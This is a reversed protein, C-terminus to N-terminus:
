REGDRVWHADMPKDTWAKSASAAGRLAATSTTTCVPDGPKMIMGPLPKLTGSAVDEGKANKPPPPGCMVPWYSIAVIFGQADTKTARAGGYGYAQASQPPSSSASAEGGGTASASAEVNASMDVRVQMIRPDGAALIFPDHEWAGKHKKDPGVVEGDKVVGGGACEPWTDIPTKEDVQCDGDKGMLWVGPRMKPAGAEDALTFLPDKTMVVNCAGLLALSALVILSRLTPAIASL